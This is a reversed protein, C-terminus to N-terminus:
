VTIFLTFLIYKDGTNFYTNSGVVNEPLLVVTKKMPIKIDTATASSAYASAALYRRTLSATFADSEKENGGGIEEAVDSRNEYMYSHDPSTVVISQRDESLRASIHALDGPNSAVVMISIKDVSINAETVVTETKWSPYQAPPTSSEETDLVVCHTLSPNNRVAADAMLHDSCYILVTLTLTLCQVTFNM